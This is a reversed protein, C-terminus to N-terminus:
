TVISSHPLNLIFIVCGQLFTFCKIKSIWITGDDEDEEDEEEDEDDTSTSPPPLLFPPFPPLPLQSNKSKTSVTKLSVEFESLDGQRQKELLLLLNFMHVV